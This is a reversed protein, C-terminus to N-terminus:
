GGALLDNRGGGDLRTVPARGLIRLGGWCGPQRQGVPASCTLVAPSERTGEAVIRGGPEVIIAANRGWALAVTGREVHAHRRRQRVGPARVDYITDSRLTLDATLELDMGRRNFLGMREAVTFKAWARRTGSPEESEESEEEGPRLELVFQWLGPAPAEGEWSLARDAATLISPTAAGASLSSPSTLVHLSSAPSGSSTTYISGQTNASHTRGALLTVDVESLTYGGVNSCTTFALAQFTRPATGGVSLGGATDATQGTNSVFTTQARAPAAALM